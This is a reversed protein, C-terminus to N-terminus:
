KSPYFAAVSGVADQVDDIAARLVALRSLSVRLREVSPQLREPAASAHESAAALREAAASVRALTETLARRFAKFARWLALGRLAVYLLGLVFAAVLFFLSAWVAM